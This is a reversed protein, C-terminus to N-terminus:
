EGSRQMAVLRILLVLTCVRPMDAHMHRRIFIASQVSLWVICSTTYRQLEWMKKSKNGLQQARSLRKWLSAGSTLPQIISVFVCLLLSVCVWNCYGECAHVGLTLSEGQRCGMRQLRRCITPISIPIGFLRSVKGQLCMYTLRYEWCDFLTFDVTRVGWSTAVSWSETETIDEDYAGLAKKNGSRRPLSISKEM